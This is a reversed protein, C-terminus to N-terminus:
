GLEESTEHQKRVAVKQTGEAERGDLRNLVTPFVQPLVHGTNIGCGLGAARGVLDHCGRIIDNGLVRGRRPREGM